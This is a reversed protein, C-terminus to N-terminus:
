VRARIRRIEKELNSKLRMLEYKSKKDNDGRADDLKENVLTLEMELEDLIQRKEKYDLKGDLYYQVLIGISGYVPGLASWIGKSIALKIGLRILRILKGKFGGEIIANRRKTKDMSKLKEWTNKVLEEFPKPIEKVAHAVKGVDKATSRIVNTGKRVVKQAKHSGKVAKDAIKSEYVYSMRLMDDLQAFEEEFSNDDMMLTILSDSFNNELDQIEDRLEDIENYEEYDITVNEYVGREPSHVCSLRRCIDEVFESAPQYSVDNKTDNLIKEIALKSSYQAVKAINPNSKTVIFHAIANFLKGYDQINCEDRMSSIHKTERIVSLAFVMILEYVYDQCCMIENDSFNEIISVLTDVDIGCENYNFNYCSAYLDRFVCNKFPNSYVTKNSNSFFLVKTYDTMYRLRCEDEVIQPIIEKHYENIDSALIANKFKIINEDTLLPIMIHAYDDIRFRALNGIYPVIDNPNVRSLHYSIKEYANALEMKDLNIIFDISDQYLIDIEAVPVDKKKFACVNGFLISNM